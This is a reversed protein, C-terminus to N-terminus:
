SLSFKTASFEDVVVVAGDFRTITKAECSSGEDSVNM